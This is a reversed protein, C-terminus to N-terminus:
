FYKKRKKDKEMGWGYKAIKLIFINNFYKLWKYFTSWYSQCASNSKEAHEESTWGATWSRTAGHGNNSCFLWLSTFLDFNSSFLTGFIILGRNIFRSLSLTFPIKGSWLQGNHRYNGLLCFELYFKVFFNQLARSHANTKLVSVM